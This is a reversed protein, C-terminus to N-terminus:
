ILRIICGSIKTQSAKKLIKCIKWDNIINNLIDSRDKYLFGAEILLKEFNSISAHRLQIYLKPVKSVKLTNTEREREEFILVNKLMISVSQKQNM